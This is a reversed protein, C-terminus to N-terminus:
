VVRGSGYLKKYGGASGGASASLIDHRGCSANRGATKLTTTHKAHKVGREEKQNIKLTSIPKETNNKIYIFSPCASRGTRKIMTRGIKM